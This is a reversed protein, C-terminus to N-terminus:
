KYALKRYTPIQDQSWEIKKQFEVFAHVSKFTKDARWFYESSGVKSLPMIVIKDYGFQSATVDIIQKGYIVFAHAGNVAIQVDDYGADELLSFLKASAIACM